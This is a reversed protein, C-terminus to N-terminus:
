DNSPCPMVTEEQPEAFKKLLELHDPRAGLIEFCQIAMRDIKINERVCLGCLYGVLFTVANSKTM